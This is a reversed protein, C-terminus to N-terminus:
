LPNFRANQYAHSSSSYANNSCSINQPLYHKPYVSFPSLFKMPFTTPLSPNTPESSNCIYSLKAESDDSQKSSKSIIKNNNNTFPKRFKM